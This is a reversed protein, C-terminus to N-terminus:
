GSGEPSVQRRAPGRHALGYFALKFALHFPREDGIPVRRLQYPDTDRYNVGHEVTVALNYGASRTLTRVTADHHGNPYSFSRVPLGLENELIRRAESVQRRVEEMSERTLVVHDITHSGIEIGESALQRLQKWNAYLERLTPTEPAVHLRDGLTDLVRERRSGPLRVLRDCLFSAM